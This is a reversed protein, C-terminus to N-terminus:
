RRARGRPRSYPNGEDMKKEALDIIDFVWLLFLVLCWLPLLQNILLNWWFLNEFMAVIILVSGIM